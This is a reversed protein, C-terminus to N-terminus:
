ARRVFAVVTEVHPTNPFLDFLGPQEIRYGADVLHRADRALTAVDCSVYVIRAARLALIGAMAARSVGTRPPDVVVTSEPPLRRAGAVFAEVSQHVVQVPAAARAANVALDRASWPDGEVAVVERSGLAALALGFLGVGSYLDIVTERGAREAVAAVLPEVLFRNAQFFSRAHRHLAVAAQRGAARCTLAEDVAPTGSITQSEGAGGASWSLGTFGEVDGLGGLGGGAAGPPLEVHCVRQSGDLSEALDIEAVRAGAIRTLAAELRAIAPAAAPLLQGAAAPCCLEHSGERFFGIRGGRVHLRARLRYGDAPSGRVPLDAPLDLRGLRAFADRVIERKLACQREYVIHAFSNGGCAVDVGPERRDASPEIVRRTRGWVTGRQVKEIEVEVTEGPIAGLVLVVAGRYRGIMRGGAAPKEITLTLREGQIM